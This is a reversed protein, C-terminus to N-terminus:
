LARQIAQLGEHLVSSQELIARSVDSISCPEPPAERPQCGGGTLKNLIDDVNGICNHLVKNAQDLVEKAGPARQMDPGAPVGRGLAAHPQYSEPGISAQKACDQGETM